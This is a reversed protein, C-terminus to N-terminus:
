NKKVRCNDPITPSWPMLSDLVDKDTIELNPMQEFLYVLYAYPNLGNEKASEVISYIMASATAGRPTNSFMWGKRGIVFPKISREARNNDIELRGDELFVILKSWQNKCYAIAKGLSSKPLVRPTQYRLWASFAELVPCSQEIRITHRETPTMDVLKKEISFLQNCFNFGEKAPVDADKQDSPLAKLSDTFGRRAHSWCGALTVDPIAHYGAYGDVHLHGKFGALFRVAHKSARTTQYDFLVMPPGERGTRYLWMYSTSEPARGPEKLVQVTTEDAHLIEQRLLHEHMRGYLPSLWLEAGKVMWNAMTQRSIDVGFRALYKEQRYLPMGEVYKQSMIYAMSTPSALSGPLVSKPMPAAVITSKEGEQECKRCVYVSRIHKVAVVQPPVIKINQHIEKSMEHLEGGCCACTTDELRYEIIEEPLNELKEERTIRKKRAYTIQEMTPEPTPGAEVEAENFITLQNPDVKESSRGFHRQQSLRFQEEFWVLKATLEAIKQDQLAIKEEQLASKAELEAVLKEVNKM